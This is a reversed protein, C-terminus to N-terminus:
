KSLFEKIVWVILGGTLAWLAAGIKKYWKSDSELANLRSQCKAVPLNDIGDAIHKICKITDQITYKDKGNLENDIAQKVSIGNPM